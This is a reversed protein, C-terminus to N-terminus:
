AEPPGSDFLSDFYLADLKSNIKMQATSCPFFLAIWDCARCIRMGQFLEHMDRRHNCRECPTPDAQSRQFERPPM